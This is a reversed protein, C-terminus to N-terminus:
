CNVEKELTDCTGSELGLDMCRLGAFGACVWVWANRFRRIWCKSPIERRQSSFVNRM